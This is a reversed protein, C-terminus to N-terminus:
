IKKEEELSMYQEFRDIDKQTQKGDKIRLVSNLLLGSKIAREPNFPIRETIDERILSEIIGIKPMSEFQARKADDIYSPM